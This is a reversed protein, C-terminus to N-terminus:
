VIFEDTVSARLTWGRLRGGTLTYGFEGETPYLHTTFTAEGDNAFLEMSCRDVFIRLKNLPAELPMELVEGV